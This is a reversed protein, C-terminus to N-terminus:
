EASVSLGAICDRSGERFTTPSQFRMRIYQPAPLDRFAKSKKGDADFQKLFAVLDTKQEDKLGAYIDKNYERFTAEDAFTQSQPSASEM